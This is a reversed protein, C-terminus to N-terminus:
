MRTPPYRLFTEENNSLKTWYEILKFIMRICTHLTYLSTHRKTHALSYETPPYPENRRGLGKHKIWECRRITQIKNNLENTHKFSTKYTQSMRFLCVLSYFIWSVKLRPFFPTHLTLYIAAINQLFSGRPSICPIRNSLLQLLHWSTIINHLM